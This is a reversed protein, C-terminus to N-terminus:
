CKQCLNPLVSELLVGERTPIEADFTTKIAVAVFDAAQKMAVPLSDGKLLRGVLVSAFIDGTGPYCIDSSCYLQLCCQGPM